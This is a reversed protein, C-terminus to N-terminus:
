GSSSSVFASNQRESFVLWLSTMEVRKAFLCAFNYTAHWLAAGGDRGLADAGRGDTLGTDNKHRSCSM